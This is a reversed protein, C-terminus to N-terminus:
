LIFMVCMAIYTLKINRNLIIYITGYCFGILFSVFGALFSSMTICHIIGWILSIVIASYPFNNKGYWVEMAKQVFIIILMIIFVKFLYYIYQFLFRFLNLDKLDSLIKFGDLNYFKLFLCMIILVIAIVISQWKPLKNNLFLDFNYKMKSKRIVKLSILIMIFIMIIFYIIYLINNWKEMPAGYIHPLIFFKLLTDIILGLFSLLALSLFNKGTINDLKNTKKNM